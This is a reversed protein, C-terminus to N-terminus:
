ALACAVEERLEELVSAPDTAQLLPRGVVLHTAGDRAADGATSVRAQDDKPDSGRRIGPVVVLADKWAGRVRAIERPSCVVGALGASRAVNALREAEIEIEGVARGTAAAYSTKDHSTLVTVGVLAPSAGAARVAAELMGSGGLTHVTAMTVGLDRAASVAGAVTNPIDHWKLDLFVQLGRAAVEQVFPAGVRTMLVPGLKVWRLGPVRDLMRRAADASAVDLALVIETM